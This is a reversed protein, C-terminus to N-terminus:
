GARIGLFADVHRGLHARLLQWYLERVETLARLFRERFRRGGDATLVSGFTVHLVQRAHFDDLLTPLEADGLAAAPPVRGPDASVHYSRRDTEYRERAFDLLERFLEPATTALARLAELYSTGATKLHALGGSLEAVASYLAFKDSGSHLSLKYPGVTRMVAVHRAFSQRFEEVNGIYDVGKELRGVFRPALSVWRVGLRRLEAAIVYHEEPSTPTDTEDVSIEVEVPRGARAVIHRYMIVVHAMARGYKILGRALTGATFVIQSGDALVVPRGLYRRELDDATTELGAFDVASLLREATGTALSDADNRVHAGPDITLMTFGAALMPDIDEVKQLHDGDAGFGERFGEQLVGWTASDLVDQPTRRTRALERVSQQALVVGVAKGRVAQVHGPTALGLRDGLGVSTRLGLPQPATWPLAQRVMEANAHNAPGIVLPVGALEGVREGALRGHGLLGVVTEPGRRALFFVGQASPSVSAPYVRLGTRRELSEINSM